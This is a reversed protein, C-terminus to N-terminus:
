RWLNGAGGERRSHKTVMLEAYREPYIAWEIGHRVWAKGGDPLEILDM